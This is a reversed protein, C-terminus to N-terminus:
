KSIPSLGEIGVFVDKFVEIFVPMVTHLVLEFGFSVLALQVIFRISKLFWEDIKEDIKSAKQFQLNVKPENSLFQKISMTSM